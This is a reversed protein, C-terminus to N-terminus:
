NARMLIASWEVLENNWDLVPTVGEVNFVTAKPHESETEEDIYVVLGKADKINSIRDNITLKYEKPYFVRIFETILIREGYEIGVGLASVGSSLPTRAQCPIELAQVDAQNSDTDVPRWERIIEGSQPDQTVVYEGEMASETNTTQSYVQMKMSLREDFWIDKSSGFFPM